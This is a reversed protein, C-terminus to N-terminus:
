NKRRRVDTWGIIGKKSRGMEILYKWEREKWEVVDIIRVLVQMYRGLESEIEKKEDLRNKYLLQM